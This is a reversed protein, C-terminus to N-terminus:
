VKNVNQGGKGGSRATRFKIESSIDVMTGFNGQLISLKCYIFRNICNINRYTPFITCKQM